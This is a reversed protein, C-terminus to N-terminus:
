AAMPPSKGGEHVAHHHRDCLLILNDLKTEGGKPWPKIHHSQCWGPPRDCGPAQCHQDRAVLARWIAPTPTRTTRGADLPQSGGATIVRSIDADCALRELTARCIRGGHALDSRIERCIGPARGELEAIDTTVIIRPRPVSKGYVINMLADARLQTLTRGSERREEARAESKIATLLAEGEVPPLLGDIKVMGEFTRSIDLRRQRYQENAEAAGGDGDIADCAHRVIHSFLKPDLEKAAALLEPELAQLAPLREPSAARTLVSVHHRSVEGAAFAAAFKPFEDLRRGLTVTARAHGVALNTKDRLWAAPSIFDDASWDKARDAQRVRRIFESELRDALRRLRALDPEYECAALKDIASELEDLPSFM